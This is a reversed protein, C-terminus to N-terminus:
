QATITLRTSAPVRALVEILSSKRSQHVGGIGHRQGLRQHAAGGDGGIGARREVQQLLPQLGQTEGAPAQAELTAAGVRDVIEVGLQPLTPPMQGEGAMDVHHRGTRAIRPAVVREGAGDLVAAEIAAARGVHLAPHGREDGGHGPEHGFTARSATRDAEQDGAVLFGLRDVARDLQQGPRGLLALPEIGAQDALGGAGLPQAVGGLDAPAARDGAPEGHAAPLAVGGVRLAGVIGGVPQDGHEACRIAAGSSWPM